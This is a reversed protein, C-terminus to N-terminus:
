PFCDDNRRRKRLVRHTVISEQQRELHALRRLREPIRDYDDVPRQIEFHRAIREVIGARREDLLLDLRARAGRSTMADPCTEIIDPSSTKEVKSPVRMRVLVEHVYIRDCPDLRLLDPHHRAECGADLHDLLPIVDDDRPAILEEGVVRGILCQRLRSRGM